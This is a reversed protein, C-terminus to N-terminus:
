LRVSRQRMVNLIRVVLSQLSDTEPRELEGGVGDQARELVVECLVLMVYVFM